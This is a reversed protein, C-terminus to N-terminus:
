DNCNMDPSQQDKVSSKKVWTDISLAKGGGTGGGIFVMPSATIEPGLKVGAKKAAEKEDGSLDFGLVHETEKTKPNVMEVGNEVGLAIPFFSWAISKDTFYHADLPAMMPLPPVAKLTVKGKEYDWGYVDNDPDVHPVFTTLQGFIQNFQRQFNEEGSESFTTPVDFEVKLPKIQDEDWELIRIIDKPNQDRPQGLITTLEFMRQYVNKRATLLAKSSIIGYIMAVFFLVYGILIIQIMGLFGGLISVVFGIILIGLFLNKRSISEFGKRTNMRKDKFTYSIQEKWKPFIKEPINKPNKNGKKIAKDVVLKKQAYGIGWFILPCVIVYGIIALIISSM